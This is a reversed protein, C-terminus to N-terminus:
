NVKERQDRDINLIGYRQRPRASGIEMVGYLCGELVVGGHRWGRVDEEEAAVAFDGEEQGGRRREWEQCIVDM